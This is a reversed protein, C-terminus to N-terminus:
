FLGRKTGRSLLMYLEFIELIRIIVICIKDYEFLSYRLMCLAEKGTLLYRLLLLFNVATHGVQRYRSVALGYNFM